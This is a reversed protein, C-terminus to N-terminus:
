LFSSNLVCFAYIDFVNEVKILYDYNRVQPAPAPAPPALNELSSKASPVKPTPTVPQPAAVVPKDNSPSPEKPAAEKGARPAKISRSAPTASPEAPQKTKSESPTATPGSSEGISETGSIISLSIM